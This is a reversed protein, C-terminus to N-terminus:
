RTLLIRQIKERKRPSLNLKKQLYKDLSGNQQRIKEFGYQLFSKQASMLVTLAEQAEVSLDEGFHAEKKIDLCSNSFLYDEYVSEENVGLVSMLMATIYGTRENGNSCHILVPYNEAKSLHSFLAAFEQDYDTAYSSFLDQMYIIADNRLCKGEQLRIEMEPSYANKMPLVFVKAFRFKDPNLLREDDSRLDVITHIGLGKLRDVGSKSIRDLNGSRFVKGWRISKSNDNPYGGIDRFNAVGSVNVKRNTVFVQQKNDFVLMFYKRNDSLKPVLAMRDGIRASTLPISLNFADPTNSAYVDVKGDMNPFVEWKITDQDMQGEECVCMIELNQTACSSFLILLTYFSVSKLKIRFM